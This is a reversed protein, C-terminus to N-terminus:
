AISVIQLGRQKDRKGRTVEEQRQQRGMGDWGM